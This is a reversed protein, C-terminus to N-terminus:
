SHASEAFEMVRDTKIKIEQELFYKNMGPLSGLWDTILKWVTKVKAGGRIVLDTIANAVFEGKQKFSQKHSAPLATYIDKLGDSLIAEIDKLMKARPDNVASAVASQQQVASVPAISLAADTPAQQPMEQYKSEQEVGAEASHMNSAEQRPLLNSVRELEPMGGNYLVPPVFSIRLIHPFVQLSIRQFPNPAAHTLCNTPPRVYDAINIAITKNPLHTDNQGM